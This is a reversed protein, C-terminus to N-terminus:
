PIYMRPDRVTRALFLVIMNRQGKFCLTLPIQREDFNFFYNNQALRSTKESLMFYCDYSTKWM